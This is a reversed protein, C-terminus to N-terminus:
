FYINKMFRPYKKLKNKVIVVCKASNYVSFYGLQSILVHKIPKEFRQALLKIPKAFFHFVFPWFTSLLWFIKIELNFVPWEPLFKASLSLNLSPNIRVAV